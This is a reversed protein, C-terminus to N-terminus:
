EEEYGQVVWMGCVPCVGAKDFRLADCPLNCPNCIFGAQKLHARKNTISKDQNATEWATAFVLKVNTAMQDYDITNAEDKVQHYFETRGTSFYIFPVHENIFGKNDSNFGMGAADLLKTNQKAAVNMNNAITVLEDSLGKKSEIYVYNNTKASNNKDIGGIGDMNIAAVIKNLDMVPEKNVFYLSGLVGKEEGSFNIFLISRKPGIGQQKAQMFAYAMALCAVTGSCNDAAGNYIQDGKLLPNTGLHDYHSSVIIIEDKLTADSGEIFALVNETSLPTAKEIHTNVVVNNMEFVVPKLSSDIQKQLAEITLSKNQLLRNAM